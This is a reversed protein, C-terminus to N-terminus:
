LAVFLSLCPDGLNLTGQLSVRESGGFPVGSQHSVVMKLLTHLRILGRYAQQLIQIIILGKLRIQPHCQSSPPSSM